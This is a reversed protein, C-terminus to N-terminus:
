QLEVWIEDDKAAATIDRGVGGAEGTKGLYNAVNLHDEDGDVMPVFYATQAHAPFNRDDAARKVKLRLETDPDIAEVARVCIITGKGWVEVSTDGVRGGETTGDANTIGVNNSGNEIVGVQGQKADTEAVNLGAAATHIKGVIDGPFLLLGAAVKHAQVDYVETRNRINGLYPDREAHLNHPNLSM